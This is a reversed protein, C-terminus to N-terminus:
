KSNFNTDKAQGNSLLIKEIISVALEDTSFSKGHALYVICYSPSNNPIVDYLDIIHSTNVYHKEGNKAIIPIFTNNQM